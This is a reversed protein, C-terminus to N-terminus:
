QRVWNGSFSFYGRNLIKCLWIWKYHAEWQTTTVECVLLIATLFKVHAVNHWISPCKEIIYYLISCSGLLQYSMSFWKWWYSSPSFPFLSVFSPSAIAVCHSFLLVAPNGPSSSIWSWVALIPLMPILYSRCSELIPSSQCSKLPNEPNSLFCKTKLLTFPLLFTGTIGWTISDWRARLKRAVLFPCVDGGSWMAVAALNSFDKNAM